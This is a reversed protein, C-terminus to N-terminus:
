KVQNVSWGQGYVIRRVGNNVYGGTGQKMCKFTSQLMAKDNEELREPWSKGYKQCLSIFYRGIDYGQFAFQTPETNYLARYKLLFDKVAKDEYNIYYTLSVHMSTKHFHEVEITEFSRIKSPAYLVISFNELLMLNLNRVVDNM